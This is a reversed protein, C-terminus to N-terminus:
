VANHTATNTDDNSNNNNMMEQRILSNEAGAHSAHDSIYSYSASSGRTYTHASLHKSM